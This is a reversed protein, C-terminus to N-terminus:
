AGTFNGTEVDNPQNITSLMAQGAVGGSPTATTYGSVTTPNPLAEYVGERLGSFTYRGTSDTTTTVSTFSTDYSTCSGPTPSNPASSTLCRRLTVQMGPIATNDAKRILGTVTGTSYLFTYSSPGVNQATSTAYNWSPLPQAASYCSQDNSGVRRLNDAIQCTAAATATTHVIATDVVAGTGSFRRLVIAGTPSTAKLVYRGERLGTFAYAGNADTTTTKVLTDTTVTTGSNDRYLSITVGALGEGPDVTNFDQDRDNAVFGQIQTDGRRAVFNATAAGAPGVVHVTISAQSAAWVTDGTASISDHLPSVIYVGDRVNTLVAQGGVGGRSITLTTDTPRPQITRPDSRIRIKV